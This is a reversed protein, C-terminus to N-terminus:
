LAAGDAPDARSRSRERAGLQEFAAVDEVKPPLGTLDFYLRRVLTTKHADPSPRIGEAELRALIFHDISDRPWASDSVRPAPRDVPAVYTWPLSWQAGGAIWRKLLDIEAPKLRKGTEPPPM